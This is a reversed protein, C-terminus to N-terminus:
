ECATRPQSNHRRQSPKTIALYLALCWCSVQVQELDVALQQGAAVIEGLVSALTSPHVELMTEHLTVASALHERAEALKADRKGPVRVVDLARGVLQVAQEAQARMTDLATLQAIRAELDILHGEHDQLAGAKVLADRAEACHVRAADFRREEICQEAAKLSGAGQDKKAEKGIKDAIRLILRHTQQQLKDVRLRKHAKNLAQLAQQAQQEATGLQVARLSEEAEGLLREGEQRHEVEQRVVRLEEQMNVVQQLTEGGGDEAQALAQRAQALLEDAEDLQEKDLCTRANQILTAVTAQASQQEMMGRIVEEIAQVKGTVELVESVMCPACVSEGCRELAARARQAAFKAALAEPPLNAACQTAEQVAQRAEGLAAAAAEMVDLRQEVQAVEQEGDHIAARLFAARAHSLARRAAGFDAKNMASEAEALLKSGQEVTADRDKAERVRRILDEAKVVGDGAKAQQFMERAASAHAHAQEMDDDGLAEEGKRLEEEGNARVRASSVEALLQQAAAINPAVDLREFVQLATRGSEQAGELDDAALHKRADQLEADGDELEQLWQVAVEIRHKADKVEQALQTDNAQPLLQEARLLHGRADDLSSAKGPVRALETAGSALELANRIEQRTRQRAEEAQIREELETVQAEREELLGGKALFLMAQAAERRAEDFHLDGLHKEAAAIAADAEASTHTERISQEVGALVQRVQAALEEEDAEQFGAIATYCDDRAAVLLARKENADTETVAREVSLKCAMFAARARKLCTERGEKRAVMVDLSALVRTMEDLCKAQEFLSRAKAIALRADDFEGDEICAQADELAQDGQERQAAARAAAAAAEAAAVEESCPRALSDALLVLLYCLPLCRFQTLPCARVRPCVELRAVREGACWVMCMNADVRM